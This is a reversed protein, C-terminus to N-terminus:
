CVGGARVAALRVWQHELEIVEALLGEAYGLAKSVTGPGIDEGLDVLALDNTCVTM